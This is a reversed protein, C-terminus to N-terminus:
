KFWMRRNTTMLIVVGYLTMALSSAVFFLPLSATFHLIAWGGLVAVALRLVGSTLPWTLKRAGQAAFYLTFGLGFFGFFPGVVRLYAVGAEIMAPDEGFLGMWHYPWIAAALGITEAVVFSMAGGTLAIKLAREQQNAGLNSAVMAVLPAGIGFAVPFILYELRAATGYGALAATGLYAGVLATTSAILGNTLLPNLTALGGVALINRMPPWHLPGWQLRALNKGSMVYWLLIATGAGYYVVLAWGAGAIGLAPFPGLGFIFLPSIPVLLVAGGSIVLGPTLMNGSGRIVSALANMIWMLILGPFAIQAYALAATLSDDKAGMLEFLPKSFVILLASCIVGLATNLVVAHLALSNAEANRGAGLARAVASSIGGGMAGQSMSQMLMLIPLVLAAGALAHIGLKSLFWAEIFGTSSQAIMMVLNPWALSLLTIFIPGKLMAELRANGPKKPPSAAPHLSPARATDTM